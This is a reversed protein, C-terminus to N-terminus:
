RLVIRGILFAAGLALLFLLFTIAVITASYILGPALWWMAALLPPGATMAILLTHLRYQIM